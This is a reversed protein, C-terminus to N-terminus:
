LTEGVEIERFYLIERIVGGNPTLDHSTAIIQGSKDKKCGLKERSRIPTTFSIQVAFIYLFVGRFQQSKLTDRWKSRMNM